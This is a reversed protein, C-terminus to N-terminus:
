LRKKKILSLKKFFIEIERQSTPLLVLDCQLKSSGGDALSFVLSLSFHLLWARSPGSMRQVSPLSWTHHFLWMACWVLMEFGFLLCVMCCCFLCVLCFLLLFRLATRAKWFRWSPPPIKYTQTKNKNQPFSEHHGPKGWIESGATEVEWFRWRGHKASPNKLGLFKHIYSQCWSLLIRWSSMREKSAEHLCMKWRLPATNIM